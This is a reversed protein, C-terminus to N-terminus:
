TVGQAGAAPELKPRRFAWITAAPAGTAVARALEALPPGLDPLHTLALVCVALDVAGDGLPLRRVDGRVFTAGPVAARAEALMESSADVGIVRHGGAEALFRSHRGTGCAADLALGPALGLGAVLDHVVAQEVDVLPNPGDYGAAWLAYGDVSAIPETEWALALEGSGIADLIGGIEAFRAEVEAATSGEAQARLLAAGELGLLWAGIHHYSM